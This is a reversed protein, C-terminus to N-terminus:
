NFSFFLPFFYFSTDNSLMLFDHSLHTLNSHKVQFWIFGFITNIASDRVKVLGVASTVFCACNLFFFNFLPCNPHPSCAHGGHSEKSMGKDLVSPLAPQCRMLSRARCGLIEMPWWSIHSSSAAAETSNGGSLFFDLWASLDPLTPPSPPCFASCVSPPFHSVLKM